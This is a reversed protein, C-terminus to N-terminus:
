PGGGHNTYWSLGRVAVATPVASSVGPEIRQRNQVRRSAGFGRVAAEAMPITGSESRQVYRPSEARLADLTRRDPRAAVVRPRGDGTPHYSHAWWLAGHGFGGPSSSAKSWM